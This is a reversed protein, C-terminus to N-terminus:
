PLAQLCDHLVAREPSCRGGKPHPLWLGFCCRRANAEEQRRQGGVKSQLAGDLMSRDPAEFACEDLKFQLADYAEFSVVKLRRIDQVLADVQLRSPNHLADGSLRSMYRGVADLRMCMKDM